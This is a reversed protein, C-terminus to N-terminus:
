LLMNAVFNPVVKLLACGLSPVLREFLSVNLDFGCKSEKQLPYHEVKPRLQQHDGIMILHQCQPSLATLLHAELVEGAEEVIIVPLQQSSIANAYQAAGWTTCAIIQAGSLIHNTRCDKIEQIRKRTQAIEQQLSVIKTQLDECIRAKWATIKSKRQHRNLNWIPDTTFLSIAENPVTNECWLRFLYADEMARGDRGVVEFDDGADDRLPSVDFMDV